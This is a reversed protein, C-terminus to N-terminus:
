AAARNVEITIHSLRPLGRLAAKYVEPPRPREASIEAVLALHGPGVAWLHLDDVQAGEAELRIRVKEGTGDRPAADLLVAGADRMLGLSWHAILAGGLLGVAADLWFWGLWRGAVLAAIALISTLADTLVHLYAGRLNRDEAGHAHDHRHGHGHDHGHAHEHGGRALLWACVLNVLLGIAAVLIAEDFRIEQPAVMRGVSEVALGIAVALLAVANAFAALDGVKGAGFALRPDQAMRRAFLYALGAVTLAGAHTAMHVGDALLAMSGYALGALIEVVMVAATVAVVIWVRRENRAGDKPLFDCECRTM